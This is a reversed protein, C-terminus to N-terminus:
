IIVENLTAQATSNFETLFLAEVGKIRRFGYFVCVTLLMPTTVFACATQAMFIIGRSKWREQGTRLDQTLREVLKNGRLLQVINVIDAQLLKLPVEWNTFSLFAEPDDPKARLYKSHDILNTVNVLICGLDASSKEIQKAGVVLRDIQSDRDATYFIKCALGLDTNSYFCRVDPEDLKVTSSFASAVCAVIYEWTKDREKSQPAITTLSLDPGRFLELGPLVAQSSESRLSRHIAKIIFALGLTRRFFDSLDTNVPLQVKGNFADGIFKLDDIDQQLPSAQPISVSQKQLLQEFWEATRKMSGGSSIPLGLTDVVPM